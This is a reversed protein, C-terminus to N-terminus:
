VSDAPHELRTTLVVEVVENQLLQPVRKVFKVCAPLACALLAVSGERALRHKHYGVLQDASKLEQVHLAENMPVDFRVVEHRAGSFLSPGDVDDVEAQRLPILVEFGVFV